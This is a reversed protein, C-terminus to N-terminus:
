PVRVWVDDTPVTDVDMSLPFPVNNLWDVLMSEYHDADRFHRQGGPLQITCAMGAPLGECLLRMSAGANHSYDRTFPSNPQAVDVTWTGGDNARPGNNFTNIGFSDFLDARLTVTHVRGWRWDAADAGQQSVIWDGSVTLARLLTDAPTEVGDETSVDDWWNENTLLTDTGRVLRVTHAITPYAPLQGADFEDGYLARRFDSLLVHFALCGASAAAVAPDTTAPDGPRVGDLGTPCQYDWARLAEMVTAASDPRGEPGDAGWIELLAPVMWRGAVSFVDAQIDRMSEADHLQREAMREIIRSQRGGPDGDIQLPPYGENGPIGDALDGTMDQNATAVYGSPPNTAQPLADLSWYREWEFDGNGPVPFWSPNDESHWDRFPVRNYPYWGIGGQNDAVVWNQGITTTLSLAERAEELNSARALRYLVEIDTSVDQGTWRLSLATGAEPDISLVPGHHPVWQLPVTTTEGTDLEFPWDRTILPVEEGRFIVATRDENLEEIYVETLDFYAVTGGWAINRNQGLVVWPLGAFTVGATMTPDATDRTSDLHAVYWLAPNTLQLHPDNAFLTHGSSSRSPGVVWNNSGAAGIEGRLPDWLRMSAEAALAHDLLREMGRFRALAAPSPLTFRQKTSPPGTFTQGASAYTTADADVSRPGFLEAYQAPTLDAARRAGAIKGASNNTLSEVLALISALSDEVTWPPLNDRNVLPFNYEDALTAGNRGAELDALWANVGDAYAQLEALVEPPTQNRLWEEAPTGDPRTFTHRFNAATELALEGVLQTLRGTVVRRRLDMQAFRDRAHFYGIARYCDATVDCRIHPIGRADYRVEITGEASPIDFSTGEPLPTTGSDGTDAGADTSDTDDPTGTDEGPAPAPDDDGCAAPGQLLGLALLLALPIRPPTPM